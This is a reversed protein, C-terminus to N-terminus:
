RLHRGFLIGLSFVALCTITPRDRLERELLQFLEDLQQKVKHEAHTNHGAEPPPTAAPPVKTTDGAASSAAAEQQKRAASLAAVEARLEDLERRLADKSM